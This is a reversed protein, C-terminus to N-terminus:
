LLRGDNGGLSLLLPGVPRLVALLDLLHQLQSHFAEFLDGPVVSSVFAVTEIELRVPNPDFWRWSARARVDM